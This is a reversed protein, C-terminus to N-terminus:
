SERMIRNLISNLGMAAIVVILWEKWGAAWILWYLATGYWFCMCVACAYVPEHMWEPFYKHFLDGLWGFIEGPQLTYYIAFVLFSIIFIKEIM